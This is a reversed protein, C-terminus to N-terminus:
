PGIPNGAPLPYPGHKFALPDLWIPSALPAVRGVDLSQIDWFAELAFARNSANSIVLIINYLKRSAMFFKMKGSWISVFNIIM